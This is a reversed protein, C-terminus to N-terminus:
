EEKTDIAGAIVERIFDYDFGRRLLLNQVRTKVRDAERSAAKSMRQRALECAAKFVEEKKFNDKVVEDALEPVIGKKKLERKLVWANRCRPGSFAKIWSIAFQRDDIYALAKLRECVRAILDQAFGKAYLRSALEQETRPRFSLLRLAASMAKSYGGSADEARNGSAGKGKLLSRKRM